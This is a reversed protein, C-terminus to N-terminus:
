RPLELKKQAIRKVLFRDLGFTVMVLVLRSIALRIIIDSFNDDHNRDQNPMMYTARANTNKPPLKPEQQNALM